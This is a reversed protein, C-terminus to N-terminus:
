PQLSQPLQDGLRHRAVSLRRKITGEPAAFADAMERISMDEFYFAHLTERDLDQLRFMGAGIEESLEAALVADFTAGGRAEFLEDVSLDGYTQVRKRARLNLAQHCTIQRLWGSFAEDQRNQGLHKFAQTFAEQCAEEADDVNHLVRLAVAMMSGHFRVFLQGFADSDGAKAQRVLEVVVDSEEFKFM